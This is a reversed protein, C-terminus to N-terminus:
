IKLFKSLIKGYNQQAASYVRALREIDSQLICVGLVLRLSTLKTHVDSSQSTNRVYVEVSMTEPLCRDRSDREGCLLLIM